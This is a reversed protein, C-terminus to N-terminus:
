KFYKSAPACKYYIKDEKTVLPFELNIKNANFKLIGHNQNEDSQAKEFFVRILDTGGFIISTSNFYYDGNNFADELDSWIYDAIYSPMPIVAVRGNLALFTVEIFDTDPNQPGSGGLDRGKIKDIYFLTEGRRQGIRRTQNIETNLISIESDFPEISGECVIPTKKELNVGIQSSNAEEAFTATLYRAYRSDPTGNFLRDTIYFTEHLFLSAQDFASLHKWIEKQILVRSSSLYRALQVLKCGAPPGVVLAEDDVERIIGNNIFNLDKNLYIVELQAKFENAFAIKDLRSSFVKIWEDLSRSSNREEDYNYRYLTQGEYLDFLEASKINGKQDYCVVADGGGSISPGTSQLFTDKIHQSPTNTESSCGLICILTVLIFSSLFYKKKM